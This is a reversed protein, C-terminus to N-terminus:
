CRRRSRISARMNEVCAINEKGVVRMLQALANWDAEARLGHTRYTGNEEVRGFEGDLANDVPLNLSLTLVDPMRARTLDEDMETVVQAKETGIEGDKALNGDGTLEDEDRYRRGSIVDGDSNQMLAVAVRHVVLERCDYFVLRLFVDINLEQVLVEGDQEGGSM